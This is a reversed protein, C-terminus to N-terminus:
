MHAFPRENLHSPDIQTTEPSSRQDLDMVMVGSSCVRQYRLGGVIVLSEKKGDGYDRGVDKDDAGINGCAWGLREM